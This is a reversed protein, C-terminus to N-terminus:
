SICFCSESPPASLTCSGAFPGYSYIFNASGTIGGGGCWTALLTGVLIIFPLRRGAVTFDESSKVEKRGKYIGYAILAVLYCVIVALYGM